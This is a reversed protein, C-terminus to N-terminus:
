GFGVEFLGCEVPVLDLASTPSIPVVRGRLLESFGNKGLRFYHGTNLKKFSTLIEQKKKNKSLAHYYTCM